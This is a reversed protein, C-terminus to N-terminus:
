DLCGRCWRLGPAPPRDGCRTCFGLLRRAEFTRKWAPLGPPLAALV